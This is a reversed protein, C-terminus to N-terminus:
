EQFELAYAEVVEPEKEIIHTTILVKDGEKLERGTQKLLDKEKIICRIEPSLITDWGGDDYNSIKVTFHLIFKPNNGSKDVDISSILKVIGYIYVPHSKQIIVPQQKEPATCGALTIIFILILPYLKLKM